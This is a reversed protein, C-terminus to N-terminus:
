VGGRPFPYPLDPMIKAIDLDFEEDFFGITAEALRRGSGHPQFHHWFCFPPRDVEEGDLTARVRETRTMMPFGEKVQSTSLGVQRRAMWSAPRWDHLQVGGSLSAGDAGEVHKSPPRGGLHCGARQGVM